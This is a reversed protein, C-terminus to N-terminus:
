LMTREISANLWHVKGDKIYIDIALEAPLYLFNYWRMTEKKAFIFTDYDIIEYEPHRKSLRRKSSEHHQNLSAVEESDDIVRIQFDNKKLLQLVDQQNKCCEFIYQRVAASRQEAPVKEATRTYPKKYLQILATDNNSFHYYGLGTLCFLIIGASTFILKKM